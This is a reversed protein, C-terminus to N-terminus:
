TLQDFLDHFRRLAGAEVRFGSQDLRRVVTCATPYVDFLKRIKLRIFALDQFLQRLNVIKKVVRWGLRARWCGLWGILVGAFSLFKVLNM